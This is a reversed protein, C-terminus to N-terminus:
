QKHKIMKFFHWNCECKSQKRIIIITSIVSDAFSPIVLYVTTINETSLKFFTLYAKMCNFIMSTMCIRTSYFLDHTLGEQKTVSNKNLNVTENVNSSKDAGDEKIILPNSILTIDNDHYLEHFRFGIHFPSTCMLWSFPFFPNLGVYKVYDAILLCTRHEIM